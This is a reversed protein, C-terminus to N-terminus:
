GAHSSAAFAAKLAAAFLLLSIVANWGAFSLFAFRWQAEDCKIVKTTALKELVGGGAGGIDQITGCTDPGPWFKWEAGAHYGGLAGNALFMLAVLFLLLAASRPRESSLLVLSLFALPIGAYYAYREQLCLPCPIYGGLYEFALAALIVAIATVLVFAGTRYADSSHIAAAPSKRTTLSVPM